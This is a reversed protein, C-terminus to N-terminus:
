LVLRLNAQRFVGQPILKLHNVVKLRLRFLEAVPCNLMLPLKLPESKASETASGPLDNCTNTAAANTQM